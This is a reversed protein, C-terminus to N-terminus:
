PKFSEWSITSVSGGLASLAVPIPPAALHTLWALPPFGICLALRALAGSALWEARQVFILLTQGVLMEVAGCACSGACARLV